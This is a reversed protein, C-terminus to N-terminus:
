KRLIKTYLAKLMPYYPLPLKFVLKMFMVHCNSSRLDIYFDKPHCLYYFLSKYTVLKSQGVNSFDLDKFLDIQKMTPNTAINRYNEFFTEKSCKMIYSETSSKQVDKVFKKAYTQMAKISVIGDNEKKGYLPEVKDKAKQYGLTTPEESLFMTEFIGGSLRIVSQYDSVDTGNFLFGNRKLKKYEPFKKSQNIGYYYGQIETDPFPNKEIYYQITGNWGIDVLGVKGQFDHEELYEQLYENQKKSKTEVEEKICHFLEEKELESLQSLLKEHFPIENKLELADLFDQVSSVDLFVLSKAKQLLDDMDKLDYLNAKVAAKRSVYIYYMPIEDPFREQYVEMIMKADRALFYLKEIHDEKVKQHLWTTFSYLIPGLVEYGFHEYSDQTDIHNNLFSSLIKYDFCNNKSQFMLYNHNRKTLLSKIHKRKPVRYDSMISDGVHILQQKTIQNEEFIKQFLNGSRKTLQYESSLYLKEYKTYGNNKLIEEVVNKPLYMDSTFFIKKNNKVLKQYIDFVPINKTCFDKELQLELAILEKKQKNEYGDMEGYIEQLSVEECNSKQHAIKEAKIRKEKFGPYKIELIDFLDTPNNANRKIVTDFIDFSIYEYQDLIEFLEDYDKAHFTYFYKEAIRKVLKKM